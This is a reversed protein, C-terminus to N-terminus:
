SLKPPSPQVIRRGSVFESSVRVYHRREGAALPDLGLGDLQAIEDPDEVPIARGVVLVSWGTRQEPDFRDCQFAVVAHSAAAALKTGEATKFVIDRDNLAFNVTFIAPLAGVSVGVRGVQGTELLALCQEENLLELGDDVLLHPTNQGM